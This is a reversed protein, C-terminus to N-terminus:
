IVYELPTAVNGMFIKPLQSVLHILIGLCSIWQDDLNATRTSSLLYLEIPNLTGSPMYCAMISVLRELCSIASTSCFFIVIVLNLFVFFSIM